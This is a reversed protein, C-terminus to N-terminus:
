KHIIQASQTSDISNPDPPNPVLLYALIGVFILSAMSAVILWRVMRQRHEVILSSSAATM